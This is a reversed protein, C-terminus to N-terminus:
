IGEQKNYNVHSDLNLSVEEKPSDDNKAKHKCEEKFSHDIHQHNCHSKDVHDRHHSFEHANKSGHNHDCDHSGIFEDSHLIKIMVLNCFLGFVSTYLMIKADIPSPNYIREFAEKVLFATLVWITLVSTLAGIVEARHYGFTYIKNSPKQGICIAIISIIFGSLDSFLHAADTIIAISNSLIGGILEIIMFLLCIITILVMKKLILSDKKIRRKEIKDISEQLKEKVHQHTTEVENM